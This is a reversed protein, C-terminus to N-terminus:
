QYMAGSNLTNQFNFNKIRNVCPEMEKWIDMHRCKGVVARINRGDTTPFCKRLLGALLLMQVCFAAGEDIPNKEINKRFQELIWTTEEPRLSIIKKQRFIGKKTQIELMEKACLSKQLDSVIYSISKWGSSCCYYELWNEKTRFSAKINRYMGNLGSYEQPLSKDARLCGNKEEKVCGSELLDYIGGLIIGASYQPQCININKGGASYLLVMYIESLLLNKM